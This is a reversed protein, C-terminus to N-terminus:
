FLTANNIRDLAAIFLTRVLTLYCYILLRILDYWTICDGRTKTHTLAHTHWEELKRLQQEKPNRYLFLSDMSEKKFDRKLVSMKKLKELHISYKLIGKSSGWGVGRQKHNESRGAKITENQKGDKYSQSQFTSQLKHSM